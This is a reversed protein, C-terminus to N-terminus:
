IMAGQLASKDLLIEQGMSKSISKLVEEFPADKFDADVPTDLAKLIAQEKATFKPGKPRLKNIEKWRVPDFEIDGKPPVASRDVSRMALLFGDQQQGILVKADAIKQSMSSSEAMAMVAPNDPYKKILENMEDQALDPRGGKAMSQIRGFSKMLTDREDLYSRVRAREAEKMERKVPNIAPPAPPAPIEGKEIRSISTSLTATWEAKFNPPVLPDELKSMATKLVNIARIKSTAQLRTAEAVASKLEATLKDTIVKQQAQVSKLLRDDRPQACLTSLAFLATLISFALFSATRRM